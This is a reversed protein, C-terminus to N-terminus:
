PQAPTSEVWRELWEQFAKAGDIMRPGPRLLLDPPIDACIANRAVAKMRGWGPRQAIAKVPSASPMMYACLIVDPNEAIIWEASVHPYRIKLESGINRGGALQVIDSLFTDGGVTTVPDGWVEIYVGPRQRHAWFSETQQRLVSRRQEMSQIWQRGTEPRGMVECLKGAAQMLENWSECPLLLVRVGMQEIAQSYSPNELDTTLLVQARVGKLVELNPRGFAGIPTVKKVEDPFDCASSRGVLYRGFGLEYVLETLSPSLSVIREVPLEGARLSLLGAFLALFVIWCRCYFHM